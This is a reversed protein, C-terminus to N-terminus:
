KRLTPVANPGRPLRLRSADVTHLESRELILNAEEPKLNCDGAHSALYVARQAVSSGLDFTVYYKRFFPLGLVYEPGGEMAEPVDDSEVLLLKCRHRAKTLQPVRELVTRAIKGSLSALYMDPTLKVLAEGLKLTLTPMVNINSCDEDLDDMAQEIQAKASRPVGILSSGSDLLASCSGSCEISVSEDYKHMVAETVNVSWTANGVIPVKAFLEPMENASVDNWMVVGDSGPKSGLCISFLSCNFARLMPAGVTIQKAVEIATRADEVMTRPALEGDDYTDTLKQLITVAAKWANIMPNEPPGLGIVAEFAANELIPMEAAQASWFSQNDSHFPGITVEEQGSICFTRGSGFNQQTQLRGEAYTASLQPNYHAAPGCSNCTSGFVVLESSGTDIMGAILQRGMTMYTVYQADGFNTLTQRFPADTVVPQHVGAAVDVNAQLLNISEEQRV